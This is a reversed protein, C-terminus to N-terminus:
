DPFQGNLSCFFTAESAFYYIDKRFLNLKDERERKRVEPNRNAIRQDEAETAPFNPKIDESGSVSKVMRNRAAPTIRRAM